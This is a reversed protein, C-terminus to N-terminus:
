VIRPMPARRRAEFPGSICSSCFRSFSEARRAYSLPSFSSRNSVSATFDTGSRSQAKIIGGRSFNTFRKGTSNQFKKKKALLVIKRLIKRTKYDSKREQASARSKQSKMELITGPPRDEVREDAQSPRRHRPREARAGLQCLRERIHGAARRSGKQVATQTPSTKKLHAGFAEASIMREKTDKM